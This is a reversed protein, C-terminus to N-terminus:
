VFYCYFQQWCWALHFWHPFRSCCAANGRVCRLGLRFLLCSCISRARPPLVHWIDYSVIGCVPRPLSYTCVCCKAAYGTAAPCRPLCRPFWWMCRAHVEACELLHCLRTSVTRNLRYIGGVSSRASTGRHEERDDMMDGGGKTGWRKDELMFGLSRRNSLASVQSPQLDLGPRRGVPTVPRSHSRAVGCVEGQGFEILELRFTDGTLGWCPHQWQMFRRLFCLGRTLAGRAWRPSGPPLAKTPSPSDGLHVFFSDFGRLARVMRRRLPGTM